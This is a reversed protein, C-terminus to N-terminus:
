SDQDEIKKLERELTEIPPLKAQLEKPIPITPATLQYESVGIPKDMGKLSYQAIVKNKGKCLILGISQQHKEQKIKDDVATLYFNMKGAHEPKFDGIKLDIVIYCNLRIHFFLLDLYFTKDDIEIPHQRGVFSFDGGLELLFKTIHSILAEELDKEKIETSLSLFGLIYPDKIVEQAIEAQKESLTNEFNTIGEGTRHFLGLEIHHVMVNRSWGNDIVKKVYFLREQETKCKTLLTIHHYWPIQDLPVQGIKFNPYTEALRKMYKLNSKSFGDVHPFHLRIDQALNGLVKDGWKAKEQRKLILNGVEWYLNLLHKNVALIAQTQNEIVKQKIEKLLEQYNKQTNLDTM